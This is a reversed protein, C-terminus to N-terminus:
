MNEGFERCSYQTIQTIKKKYDLKREMYACLELETLLPFSLIRSSCGDPDLCRKAFLDYKVTVTMALRIFKYGGSEPNSITNLLM